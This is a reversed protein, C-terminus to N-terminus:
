FINVFIHIVNKLIGGKMYGGYKQVMLEDRTSCKFDQLNTALNRHMEQSVTKSWILFMVYVTVYMIKCM